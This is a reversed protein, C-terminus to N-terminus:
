NCDRVRGMLCRLAAMGTVVRLRRRCAGVAWCLVGCSAAAAPLVLPRLVVLVRLVRLVVVRLVVLLVATAV